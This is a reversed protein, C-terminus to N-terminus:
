RAPHRQTPILDPDCGDRTHPTGAGASHWSRRLALEQPIGAGASHWSRRFALEQPIGAGASHWGPQPTTPLADPRIRVFSTGFCAPPLLHGTRSSHHSPDSGGRLWSDSGRSRIRGRLLQGIGAEESVHLYVYVYLCICEYMRVYAWTTHLTTGICCARMGSTIQRTVTNPPPM